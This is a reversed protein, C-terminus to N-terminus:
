AYAAQPVYQLRLSSDIRNVSYVIDAYSTIWCRSPSDPDVPVVVAAGGRCLKYKKKKKLFKKRWATFCGHIRLM